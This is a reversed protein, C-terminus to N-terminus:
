LPPMNGTVDCGYQGAHLRRLYLDATQNDVNTGLPDTTQRVGHIRWTGYKSTQVGICGNPCTSNKGAVTAGCVCRLMKRKMLQLNNHLRKGAEVFVIGDKIGPLMTKCYPPKVGLAETTLSKWLRFRFLNLPYSQFTAEVESSPIDAAKASYTM